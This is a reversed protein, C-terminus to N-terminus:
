KGLVMIESVNLMANECLHDKILITIKNVKIENFTAVAAVGPYIFGDDFQVADYPFGLNQIYCSKGEGDYWSPTEALDFTIAAVKSFANEMEYSNYVLIGRVSRPTDFTLTIVTQKEAQLVWDSYMGKSVTYGDTLYKVTDGVANTATVKADGAINKYGSAVSTKPQLHKSPGNAAPIYYEGNTRAPDDLWTMPTVAYIRGIDTGAREGFPVSWEWHVIWWEGEVEVYDHHGIASMYNNNSDVGVSMSFERGKPITYEDGAGGNGLPTSSTSFHVNYLPDGIGTYTFTLYYVNEGDKNPYTIIQVGERIAGSGQGMHTNYDPNAMEVGGVTITPTNPTGDQWEEWQIYSAPDYRPYDPDNVYNPNVEYEYGPTVGGLVPSIAANKAPDGKYTVRVPAYCRNDNRWPKEEDYPGDDCANGSRRDAAAMLFTITSWDPTVMDKMKIGWGTMGTDTQTEGGKHTTGSSNFVLYLDGNTDFFPSYDVNYGALTNNEYGYWKLYDLTPWEETLYEGNLNMGGNYVNESTAIEFPGVPTDSVAVGAVWVQSLIGGQVAEDGYKKGVAEIYGSASQGGFYMFYRGHQGPVQCEGECDCPCYVTEPAWIGRNIFADMGLKMGLGNDVVGCLEWDYLDKSRSIAIHSTYAADNKDKATEGQNNSPVNNNHVHGCESMYQYFYGGYEPDDEESVWIVGSDGGLFESTNKYLLDTDYGASTESGDFHGLEFGNLSVGSGGNGGCGVFSIATIAVLLISLLKKKM